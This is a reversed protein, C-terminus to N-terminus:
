GFIEEQGYCVDKGDINSLLLHDLKLPAPYEPINRPILKKDRTLSGREKKM